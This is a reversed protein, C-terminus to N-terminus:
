RAVQSCQCEIKDIVCKWLYKNIRQQIVFITINKRRQEDNSVGSEGMGLM